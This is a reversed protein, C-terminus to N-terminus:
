IAPCIIAPQQSTEAAEKYGITEWDNKASLHLEFALCMWGGARRHEFM